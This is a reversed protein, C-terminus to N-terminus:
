DMDKYIVELKGLYDSLGEVCEGVATLDDARLAVEIEGGVRSIEHFGYGGGVGKINHAIFQLTALDHQELALRFKEIDQQRNKLFGPVIAQLDIDVHVIIKDTSVKQDEQYHVYFICREVSGDVVGVLRLTRVNMM